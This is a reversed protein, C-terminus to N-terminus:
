AGYQASWGALNGLVKLGNGGSKEPHFQLGVVNDRHVASCFESGYETVGLIDSPNTPRCFFSHTFYFDASDPLGRGVPSAPDFEVSNWGVHPLRSSAFGVQDVSGGILGLGDSGGSESSYEFLLQMGLCIGVLPTKNKVALRLADARSEGLERMAHSFDGVGPLILLSPDHPDIESVVEVSDFGVERLASSLSGVNGYGFDCLRVRM